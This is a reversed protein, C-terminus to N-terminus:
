VFDNPNWQFEDCQHPNFFRACTCPPCYITVPFIQPRVYIPISEILSDNNVDNQKSLFILQGFLINEGLQLNLKPHISIQKTQISKLKILEYNLHIIEKEIREHELYLIGIEFIEGEIKANSFLNKNRCLSEHLENLLTEIFDIRCYSENTKEEDIITYTFSHRTAFIFNNEDIQEFM